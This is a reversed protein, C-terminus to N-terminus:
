VVDRQESSAPPGRAVHRASMKFQLLIHANRAQFPVSQMTFRARQRTCRASVCRVLCVRCVCLSMILPRAHHPESSTPAITQTHTHLCLQSTNSHVYLMFSKCRTEFEFAGSNVAYVCKNTQTPKEPIGWRPPPPSLPKSPFGWRRVSSSCLCKDDDGM